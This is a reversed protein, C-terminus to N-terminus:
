ELCPREDSLQYLLTLTSLVILRERSYGSLHYFLDILAIISLIGVIGYGFWWSGIRPPSLESVSQMVANKGFPYLIFEVIKTSWSIGRLILSIVGVAMSVTWFLSIFGLPLKKKLLYRDSLLDVCRYSIVLLISLIPIGIALVSYPATPHSIYAKTLILLFTLITMAWLSVTLLGM